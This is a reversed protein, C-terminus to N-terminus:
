LMMMITTTAQDCSLQATDQTTTSIMVKRSVTSEIGDDDNDSQKPTPQNTHASSQTSRCVAGIMRPTLHRRPSSLPRRRRRRGHRWRVAIQHKRHPFPLYVVSASSVRAAIMEVPVCARLCAFVYVCMCESIFVYSCLCVYVIVSVRCSM